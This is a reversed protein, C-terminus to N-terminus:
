QFLIYLGLLPKVKERWQPYKKLFLEYSLLKQRVGRIHDLKDRAVILRKGRYREKIIKIWGEVDPNQRRKDLANSDIGIPFKNVHVFRNELQIGENTAEVCLLRSCTQLFHHCYEDTQFGILDAGLMGELLERRVAICRFVESSPFAVHLFFGIHANPLLKRLMAPVLLLHYDHIWIVDGPKWNSAVHKAFRENADVYYVWSHDEYAKSKPNDPIQYHFVPWLITKCFRSYFGDFDGDHVFVTESEYEEKLKKAIMSRTDENLADTAMGLTGVWLKSDVFGADVASRVANRLGGNGQETPEITWDAVAFYGYSSSQKRRHHPAPVPLSEDPTSTPTDQANGHKLVSLPPPFPAVPKPQTFTGKAGWAPSHPDSPDLTGTEPHLQPPLQLQPALMDAIPPTFIREHDTTAGPTLPSKAPSPSRTKSLLSM